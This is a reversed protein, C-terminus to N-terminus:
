GDTAVDFGPLAEALAEGIAAIAPADRRQDSAHGWLTGPWYPDDRFRGIVHVHLQPVINGIAAVNLKDAGFHSRVFRGVAHVREFLRAHAPAPLDCLEVVDTEPVVLFWPLAADHMLLVHSDGLRGMRTAARLLHADLEFPKNM